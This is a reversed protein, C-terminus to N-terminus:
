SVAEDDDDDDDDDRDGVYMSKGNLAMHRMEKDLSGRLVLLLLVLM